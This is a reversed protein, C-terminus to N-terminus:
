AVGRQDEYGSLPVITGILTIRKLVCGSGLEVMDPPSAGRRAGDILM